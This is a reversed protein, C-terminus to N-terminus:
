RLTEYNLDYRVEGSIGELGGPVLELVMLCEPAPLGVSEHTTIGYPASTRFGRSRYNKPNAEESVAKCGMERAKALGHVILERFIHQREIRDKRVTNKIQKDVHILKACTRRTQQILGILM